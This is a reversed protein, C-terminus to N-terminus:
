PHNGTFSHANDEGDSEVDEFQEGAGFTSAVDRAVAAMQSFFVGVNPKHNSHAAIVGEEDADSYIQRGDDATNSDTRDEMFNGFRFHTAGQASFSAPLTVVGGTSLSSSELSPMAIANNNSSFASRGTLNFGVPLSAGGTSSSSRLELPPMSNSPLASVKPVLGSIPSVALLDRSIKSIVPTRPTDCEDSQADVQEAADTLTKRNQAKSLDTLFQDRIAVIKVSLDNLDKESFDEGIEAICIEILFLVNLSGETFTGQKFFNYLNEFVIQSNVTSNQKQSELVGRLDRFDKDRKGSFVWRILRNNYTKFANNLSDLIFGINDTKIFSVLKESFGLRELALFDEKKM